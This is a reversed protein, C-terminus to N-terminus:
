TRRGEPPRVKTRGPRRVRFMPREVLKMEALKHAIKFRVQDPSLKQTPIDRALQEVFRSFLRVQDPTM